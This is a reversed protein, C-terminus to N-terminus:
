KDTFLQFRYNVLQTNCRMHSVMCKIHLDKNLCPKVDNM